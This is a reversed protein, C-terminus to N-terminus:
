SKDGQKLEKIREQVMKYETVREHEAFTLQDLFEIEEQIINNEKVM